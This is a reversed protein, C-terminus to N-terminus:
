GKKVETWKLKYLTVAAEELSIMREKWNEIGHTNGSEDISPDVCVVGYSSSDEVPAWDLKELNGTAHNLRFKIGNDEYNTYQPKPPSQPPRPAGQQQPQPLQTGQQSALRKLEEEIPNGGAPEINMVQEGMAAYLNAIESESNAHMTETRTRTDNGKITVKYQM